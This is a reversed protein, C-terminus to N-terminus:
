QGITPLRKRLDLLDLTSEGSEIVKRLRAEKAERQGAAAIASAIDQRRVVVIGDEDGLIADGPEVPEGALSIPRGISGPWNKTTGKICLGRAFVPFGMQKLTTADRVCGDIVLGLIGKALCAQALLDGFPGDDLSGQHDVVLVDGPRAVAIAAHIALNDGAPCHVTLASGCVRMAPDLPKLASSVAGRQGNAEHITAASFAALELLLAPDPREFSADITM